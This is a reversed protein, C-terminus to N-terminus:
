ATISVTRSFPTTGNMYLTFSEMSRAQSNRSTAFLETDAFGGRISLSSLGDRMTIGGDKILIYDGPKPILAFHDGSVPIGAPLVFEFCYNVGNVGSSALDLDIGRDTFRVTVTLDSNNPHQRKRISHDEARFSVLDGSPNDLPELYSGLAHFLFRYGDKLTELKEIKINGYSFYGLSMKCYGSLTGSNFCLLAPNDHILSCTFGGKKYRVIGSATFYRNYDPLVIPAKPTEPLSLEPHLMLFAFCDPGPKIRTKMYNTAIYAAMRGAEEDKLYHAIYLYQYLYRGAYVKKGRDQRTSNGTFLSGDDEFYCIMMKLNRQVYALYKEDGLEEFFMIMAQNNVANYIASRESYEGDADCDIGEALYRKAKSLYAENGTLKYGAVLSSSMVWRHNATHFGGTRLGELVTSILDRFGDKLSAAAKAAEPPFGSPAKELLRYIPLLDWMFFGSDPASDFNCDWLDINGSPRQEKKLYALVRQARQPIEPHAYYRSAPNLWLAIIELLRISAARPFPPCLRDLEPIGGSFPSSEDFQYKLFLELREESEELLYDMLEAHNM